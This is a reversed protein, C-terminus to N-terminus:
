EEDIRRWDMDDDDSPNVIVDFDFPTEVRIITMRLDTAPYISPEPFLRMAFTGDEYAGWAQYNMIVHYSYLHVVVYRCDTNECPELEDLGALDTLIHAHAELVEILEDRTMAISPTLDRHMALDDYLAAANLGRFSADLLVIDINTEGFFTDADDAIPNTRTCGVFVVMVIILILVRIHRM